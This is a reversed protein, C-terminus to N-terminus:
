EDLVTSVLEKLALVEQQIDRLQDDFDNRMMQMESILNLATIVVVSHEDFSRSREAQETLRKDLEAAAEKIASGDEPTRVNFQRGRIVIQVNM